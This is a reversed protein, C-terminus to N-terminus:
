AGNKTSMLKLKLQKYENCETLLVLISSNDLAQYPKDYFTIFELEKKSSEM